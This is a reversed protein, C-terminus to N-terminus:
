KDTHSTNRRKLLHYISSVYCRLFFAIPFHLPKLIRYCLPLKSLNGQMYDICNKGLSKRYYDFKVKEITNIYQYDSSSLGEQAVDKLFCSFWEYQSLTTQMKLIANSTSSSITLSNERYQFGFTKTNAIGKKKAALVATIDDSGWALPQKYYGGVTKLYSLSYCFDGIYQKNRIAWRNWILSIVSEWEPRGEQCDRVLGKEDIIETRTHYVNLDPHREILQRYEELCCPLLRDDDGMCIVYDGTCYNLCINWNDVVDVAGCNKNNRYYHVRCDYLYPTVISKLNEPSCDDVVVLEWDHYSQHLVSEIAEHLYQSKYAPISISFKM